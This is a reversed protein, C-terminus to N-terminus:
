GVLIRYRCMLSDEKREERTSRPAMRTRRPRCLLAALVIYDPERRRTTLHAPSTSMCKRDNVVTSTTPCSVQSSGDTVLQNLRGPGSTSISSGPLPYHPLHKQVM